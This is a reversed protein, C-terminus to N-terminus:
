IRHSDHTICLQADKAWMQSLTPLFSGLTLVAALAWRLTERWEWGAGRTAKNKKETGWKQGRKRKGLKLKEEERRKRKGDTKTKSREGGEDKKRHEHSRARGEGTVQLSPLFGRGKGEEEVCTGTISDSFFWATKTEIYLLKLGVVNYLVVYAVWVMYIYLFGAQNYMCHLQGAHFLEWMLDRTPESQTQWTEPLTEFSGVWKRM